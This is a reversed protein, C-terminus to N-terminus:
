VFSVGTWRKWGETTFIRVRGGRREIRSAFEGTEEGNKLVNYAFEGGPVRGHPANNFGICWLDGREDTITLAPPSSVYAETVHTQEGQRRMYQQILQTVPEDM